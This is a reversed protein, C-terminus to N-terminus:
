ELKCVFYCPEAVFISIQSSNREVNTGREVNKLQIDPVSRPSFEFTGRKRTYRCVKRLKKEGVDWPNKHLYAIVLPLQWKSAILNKDKQRGKTKGKERSKQDISDFRKLLIQVSIFFITPRALCIDIDKNSCLFLHLIVRPNSHTIISPPLPPPPLFNSTDEVVILLFFHVISISVYLYTAIFLTSVFTYYSYSQRAYYFAVVFM